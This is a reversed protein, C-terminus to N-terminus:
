KTKIVKIANGKNESTSMYYFGADFGETNFQQYQNSNVQKSWVIKGVADSLNVVVIKNENSRLTFGSQNEFPNPYVSLEDTTIVDQSKTTLNTEAMAGRSSAGFPLNSISIQCINGYSSWTNYVFGRVRVTYTHGAILAPSVMSLELYVLDSTALIVQQNASDTFEFEYLSGMSVPECAINSDLSLAAVNCYQVTLQTPQVGTIAPDQALGITCLAGYNGFEGAVEARVRTIYQTNFQLAPIVLDGYVANSSSIYTAYLALTAPNRFEWEYNTANIVSDCVFEADPTFNLVGCDEIRVQTSAVSSICPSIEVSASATCGAANSVVVTYTGAMLVISTQTQMGNSWLYNSYGSGADLTALNNPCFDFDGVIVPTVAAPSLVITVSSNGSGSGFSGTVTVNYVGDVPNPVVPSQLASHYGNPGTWAFTLPGVGGQFSVNLNLSSAMCAPTLYSAVVNTLPLEISVICVTTINSWTNYVFGRTRVEYTQGIQLALAPNNLSLYISPQSVMTTQQNATNTFQFEYMTGMPVATCAVTSALLLSSANCFEPRLSTPPVGTIAPNQMLGVTCSVGFNGYTVGVRARIACNYTTNWQLFNVMSSSFVTGTTNKVGVISNTNIDRFEWQYQNANVVSLCVIQANPTLNIKGCDIARLQTTPIQASSTNIGIASIMFIMILLIYAVNRKHVIRNKTFVRKNM